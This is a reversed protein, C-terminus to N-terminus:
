KRERSAPATAADRHGAAPTNLSGHARPPAEFVAPAFPPVSPPTQGRARFRFIKIVKQIHARVAAEAVLVDRDIIAQLISMHEVMPNSPPLQQMYRLTVLNVKESVSILQQTLPVNRSLKALAWHFNNAIEVYREYPQTRYQEDYDLIQTQLTQLEEDSAREICLRAVMKELAERIQYLDEIEALTFDRVKLKRGQRELFGDQELRFLAERVPTRSAMYREGLEAENLVSGPPLHLQGIEKRLTWYVDRSRSPRQASALDDPRATESMEDPTPLPQMM